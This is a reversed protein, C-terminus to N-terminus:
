YLNERIRKEFSGHPQTNVRTIIYNDLQRLKIYRAVILCECLPIMYHNFYKMSILIIFTENVFHTNM